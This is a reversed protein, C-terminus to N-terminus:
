SAAKFRYGVGIVTEIADFDEDVTSCKQRIRKIFTDITRETIVVDAGRAADILQDRSLVFGPKKALALLVKFETSTLTVPKGRWTVLFKGEDIRLPGTSVTPASQKEARTTRRLVARMRAILERTNFPKGVFDDAGLELGTIRDVDDARSTLFIVPVDSTERLKRCLSLGDLEPMMVDLLVLDFTGARFAALGAKGDHAKTVHFGDEELADVLVSVLAEDDDVVLLRAQPSM